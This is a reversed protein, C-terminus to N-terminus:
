ILPLKVYFKSGKGEGESEAWIEGNHAEIINKAIYLGLGTGRIEKKISPDRVFEGFLKDQLEKSMGLGSDSVCILLNKDEQWVDLKVFGQKTYKIANDILNQIVQAFRTKDIKAYVKEAKSEFKYELGKEKAPLEFKDFIEKIFSVMEVNEFNYEIRGEEIRRYDMFEEVLALLNEISDKIKKAFNKAEEPVNEVETMILEAYGKAVTMPAKIQHSAFSLFESKIRNLQELKERQESEKYAYQRLTFGLILALFFVALNSVFNLNDISLPSETFLNIFLLILLTFVFFETGLIKINFFQWELTAYGLVLVYSFVLFNGWPMIEIDYWLPFNTFGGGFGLLISILLFLLKSKEKKDSSLRYKKIILYTSFIVLGIYLFIIYFSYLIGANPWFPFIMKHKLGTIILSPNINAMLVIFVGVLYFLYAALKLFKKKYFDLLVIIWHYFAIPIFVSFLSLAMAWLYAKKYEDSSLWLYYSFSWLVIFLSLLMFIQNIKEKRNKSFVIIGWFLTFVFNTLGSLAFINLLNM